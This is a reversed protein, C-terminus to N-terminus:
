PKGFTHARVLKALLVIGNKVTNWFLRLSCQRVPQALIGTGIGAADRIGFMTFLARKRIFRNGDSVPFCEDSYMQLVATGMLDANLKGAPIQRQDVILPIMRMGAASRDGQIGAPQMNGMWDAALFDDYGM